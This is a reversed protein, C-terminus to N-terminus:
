EFHYGNIENIGHNPKFLVEPSWKLDNLIHRASKKSWRVILYRIQDQTGLLKHLAPYDWEICIGVIWEQNTFEEIAESDLL